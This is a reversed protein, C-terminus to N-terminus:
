VVSAALRQGPLWARVGDDFIGALRAGLVLRPEDGVGIRRLTFPDCGPRNSGRVMTCAATFGAARLVSLTIRDFDGAAGNPFAFLTPVGGIEEAIRDRSITIEEGQRSASLTSLIPHSVTHSGFEIGSSHLERVQDWRLPQAPPALPACAEALRALLHDRHEVPLRKLRELARAPCRAPSRHAVAARLDDELRQPLRVRDRALRALCRHAIDFWLPSGDLFGTTLFITATAGEKRLIPWAWDYTDAYGDDMTIVALDEGLAGGDQLLRTAESLCVIRFRRKLYRLHRRFVAARVAGPVPERDDTIEHYALVVLQRVRRRRHRAMAVVGSLTV